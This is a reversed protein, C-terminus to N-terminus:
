LGTRCSVTDTAFNVCFYYCQCVYSLRGDGGYCSIYSNGSYCIGGTQHYEGFMAPDLSISTDAKSTRWPFNM